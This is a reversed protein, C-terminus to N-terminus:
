DAKKRAHVVVGTNKLLGVRVLLRDVVGIARLLPIALGRPLKIQHALYGTVAPHHKVEVQAFKAKVLALWDHERGAGEFPSLDEAEMSAKIRSPANLGFKLLGGLKERYSVQTPLLFMLASSFLASRMNVDGAEDSVWFLGGPKLANHVEAIVQPM